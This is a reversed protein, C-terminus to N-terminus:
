HPSGPDDNDLLQEAAARIRMWLEIVEPEGTGRLEDLRQNIQSLADQGFRDIMKQASIWVEREEPM